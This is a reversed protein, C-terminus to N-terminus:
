SVQSAFRIGFGDPDLITFDRLGYYRDEIPAAIAIESDKASVMLWYSDVNPVMVRINCRLINESPLRREDLFIIGNAWGMVAFGKSERIIEFGLSKYFKISIRIDSVFLEPVLQNNLEKNNDLTTFKLFKNRKFLSSSKLFSKFLSFM